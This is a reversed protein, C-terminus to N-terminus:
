INQNELKIFEDYEAETFVEAGNDDMEKLFEKFNNIMTEDLKGYIDKFDFNGEITCTWDSQGIGVSDDGGGIIIFKM